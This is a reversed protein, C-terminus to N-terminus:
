VHNEHLLEDFDTKKPPPLDLPKSKTDNGVHFDSEQLKNSQADNDNFVNVTASQNADSLNASTNSTDTNLEEVSSKIDEKNMIQMTALPLGKGIVFRTNTENM